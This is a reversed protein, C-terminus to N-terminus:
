DIQINVGDKVLNYGIVIIKDGSQIGATIETNVNDAMGTEVYVKVAKTQGDKQEAKYLYTGTIDHKLILSPVLLAKETEYDTLHIIATANPKLSEDTNNLKVRIQFTRNATNITNGMYEITTKVINEPYSPFEVWVSDGKSIKSLYSESIDANVYLRNLNVLQLVQYGPVALEGEKHFIEDIIGDFPATIKTMKLQGKASKLQSELSEKSNKATLFEVESGIEKEWLRKQKEYLTTTLDLAKELQAVSNLIVDDNLQVLLQGASVREGKKVYIKEIQAAMEVSIFANEVAEISGNAEFVHVFYKPSIEILSVKYLKGAINGELSDLTRELESIKLTITKQEDKYREIEAKIAEPSQTPSCAGLLIITFIILLRNMINTRNKTKLQSTKMNM